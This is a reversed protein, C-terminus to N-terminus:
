KSTLMNLISSYIASRQLWGHQLHSTHTVSATPLSLPSDCQRHNCLIESRAGRHNTKAEEITVGWPKMQLIYLSQKCGPLLVFSHLSPPFFSYGGTLPLGFKLPKPPCQTSLNLLLCSFLLTVEMGAQVVTLEPGNKLFLLVEQCHSLRMISTATTCRRETRCWISIRANVADYILPYVMRSCSTCTSIVIIILWTLKVGKLNISHAKKLFAMRPATLQKHYSFIIHQHEQIITGDGQFQTQPPVWPGAIPLPCEGQRRPYVMTLLALSNSETNTGSKDWIGWAVTRMTGRPVIHLCVEINSRRLKYRLWSHRKLNHHRLMLQIGQLFSLKSGVLITSWVSSCPPNQRLMNIGLNARNDESSVVVQCHHWKGHSPKKDKM